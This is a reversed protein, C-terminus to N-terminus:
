AKNRGYKKLLNAMYNEEFIVNGTVDGHDKCIFAVEGPERPHSVSEIKVYKNCLGCKAKKM